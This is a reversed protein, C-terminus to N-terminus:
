REMRGARLAVALNTAMRPLGKFGPIGCCPQRMTPDSCTWSAVIAAATSKRYQLGRCLQNSVHCSCDLIPAACGAGDPRADGWHGPPEWCDSNMTTGTHRATQKGVGTNSQLRAFHLQNAPRIVTLLAASAWPAAPGWCDCWKGFIGRSLPYRSRICRSPSGQLKDHRPGPYMTRWRGSAALAMTSKCVHSCRLGQSSQLIVISADWLYILLDDGINSGTRSSLM